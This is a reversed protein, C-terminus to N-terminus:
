SINSLFDSISKFVTALEQRVQRRKEYFSIIERILEKSEINPDAYSSTINSILHPAWKLLGNMYFKVLLTGALDAIDSIIDRYDVIISSEEFDIACVSNDKIIFNRPNADGKKIGLNHLKKLLHVVKPVLEEIEEPSFDSLLRGNIPVLYLCSGELMFLKPVCITNELFKLYMLEKKMSQSNSYCKRVFVNGFRYLVLSVDNKRSFFRKIVIEAM